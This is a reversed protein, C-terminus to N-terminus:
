FHLSSIWLQYATFLFIVTLTIIFLYNTFKSNTLAFFHAIMPSTTLILVLIAIDFCHPQVAVLFITFAAILIFSYYIQRVRITEKYSNIIFHFSGIVMLVVLFGLYVLETINLLSYDPLAVIDTFTSLHTSLLEIGEEGQLAYYPLCFWYPTLLGILSACFTRWSLSYTFWGMIIWFIPLYFLVQHQMISGAGLSLFTYFTWGVSQKDQYSHWLLFISTAAGMQMAASSRSAFLFVAACTLVLYFSSVLRSYIRILINERNLLMMMCASVVFCAFQVWWQQSVLGAILWIIISYFATIPLTYRGEAIRNQLRKTM